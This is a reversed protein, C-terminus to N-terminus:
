PLWVEFGWVLSLVGQSGALCCSSCVSCTVSCVGAGAWPLAGSLSLASPSVQFFSPLMHDQSPEHEQLGMPDVLALSLVWRGQLEM